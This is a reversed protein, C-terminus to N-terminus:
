ILVTSFFDDETVFQVSDEVDNHILQQLEKIGNNECKWIFSAIILSFKKSKNVIIEQGCEKGKTRGGILRVSDLNTRLTLATIESCSATQENVFINIRKFGVPTRNESYYTTNKNKYYLTVLEKIDKIFFRCFAM